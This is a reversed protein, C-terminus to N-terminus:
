KLSQTPTIELFDYISIWTFTENNIHYYDKMWQHIINDSIYPMTSGYADDIQKLLRVDQVKIGSKEMDRTKKLIEINVSQPFYNEHYGNLISSANLVSCLVIPTVLALKIYYSNFLLIFEAFVATIVIFTMFIFFLTSRVPITPSIVMVVQSVIGAYFFGLLDFQKKKIFYLSLTGFLLIPFLVKLM